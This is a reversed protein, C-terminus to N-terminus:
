MLLMFGKKLSWFSLTASISVSLLNDNLSQLDDAVVEFLNELSIPKPTELNLMVRKDQGLGVCDDNNEDYADSELYM